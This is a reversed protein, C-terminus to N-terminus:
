SFTNPCFMAVRAHENSWHLWVRKFHGDNQGFRASRVYIETLFEGSNNSIYEFGIESQINLVNGDFADRPQIICEHVIYLRSTGNSSQMNGTRFGGNWNWIMSNSSYNLLLHLTFKNFYREVPVFSFVPRLMSVWSYVATSKPYDFSFM